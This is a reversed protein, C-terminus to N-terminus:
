LYPNSLNRNNIRMEKFKNWNNKIYMVKEQLDSFDVKCPIYTKNNIFIDPYTQVFSTDPKILVCGCYMAEFDRYCMEGFGWPSIVIKSNLLTNVYDKATHERHDFCDVKCDKLKNIESICKNRHYTISTCNGYKSTGAFHIDIDRLRNFNIRLYKYKQLKDYFSFGYGVEVKRLDEKTLKTNVSSSYKQKKKKESNLFHKKESKNQINNLVLYSHYRSQFVEHNNLAVPRLITNKIIGLVNDLKLENRKSIISADIRELIIINKEIKLIEDTLKSAHILLMDYDSEVFFINQRSLYERIVPNNLIKSQDENTLDLKIKIMNNM